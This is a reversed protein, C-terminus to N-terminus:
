VHARGIKFNFTVSGKYNETDSVSFTVTYAGVETPATELEKEDSDKYVVSWGGEYSDGSTLTGVPAGSYGYKKNGDYLSDMATLGSITVIYKGTLSINIIITIDGYNETELIVKIKTSAPEDKIRTVFGLSATNETWGPTVSSLLANGIADTTFSTIVVDEPLLETFDITHTNETYCSGSWDVTYVKVSYYEDETEDYCVTEGKFTPYDDEDITQYWVQTGDTVGDNLLYTVEGSKFEATTKVEASGTVDAGKIGGLVTESDDLYYCNTVTGGSKNGIVGGIKATTDTTTVTGRSYCNAITARSYGSIGGVNKIGVVDGTNYSDYIYSRTYNYGVIGGTMCYSGNGTVDGNNVCQQITTGVNAASYAYGTIGGARSTRCGTISVNGNNTCKEILSGRNTILGGYSYGAIGGGYVGLGEGTASTISGYNTCNVVKSVDFDNLATSTLGVIGGLYVTAVSVSSSSKLEVSARNICNEIIGANVAAITGVSVEGDTNAIETSIKGSAIELNKITGSNTGFLGANSDVTVVYLNEIKKSNGDFTGLFGTVPIWSTTTTVTDAGYGTLNADLLDIDNNLTVTKDELSDGDNVVNAIKALGAATYVTYNGSTDISYDVDAQAAEGITAWTDGEAAFATLSFAPVVSIVMCLVIILSVLKKIKM